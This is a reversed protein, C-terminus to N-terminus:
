VVCCPHVCRPSEDPVDLAMGAQDENVFALYASMVGPSSARRTPVASPGALTSSALGHHLGFDPGLGFNAGLPPLLGLGSDDHPPGLLAGQPGTPSEPDELGSVEGALRLLATFSAEPQSRPDPRPTRMALDPTVRWEAAFAAAGGAFAVGASCAGFEAPTFAVGAPSAGFDAPSAGYDAPELQPLAYMAEVNLSREASQAGLAAAHDPPAPVDQQTSTARRFAPPPGLSPAPVDQQMSTARRFAPPAELSATSDSATKRKSPGAAGAGSIRSFDDRLRFSVFRWAGHLEADTSECLRDGHQLVYDAFM